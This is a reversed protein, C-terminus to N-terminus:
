RKEVIKGRESPKIILGTTQSKFPKGQFYRDLCIALAAAESHPQNGVSLNLDALQYVESPVKEGGIIILVDKNRFKSVNKDLELGYMTLHIKIGKFNRIIPRWSKSHFIKFGGGWKKVVKQISEELRPDRIGTYILEDAGFARAVLACHTTLRKDREPRHELRLVKIM